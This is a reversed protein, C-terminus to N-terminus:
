AEKPKAGNEQVPALQSLYTRRYLTDGAMLEQHKGREVIQGDKIVLILDANTIIPLRHSIIFTTRGKILEDVAKRILRETEADVSSTIEDLILVSPNKLIARAITVRQKEGGSLTHGREGVWTEYGDPLSMIFDHIQAAKAAATVQEITADPMGYAINNRITTSFLFVDQQATGINKRLSSLAIDRIDIGDMTIRGGSVDYFRLILNIITSKGSGSAGVLAVLQGPEVSFNISHLAPANEAYSFSVDEFAVRGKLKDLVVADPKDKVQSKTDLIEFIREGASMSRSYMNTVMGLARIPMALMGLYMIFQVIGGVTLNGAIVQRGGYWLVLATPAGILFVMLPTNFAVIRAADIQTDYLKKADDAFKKDEAKEQAFSKVIRIGTLSEQLTTGLSAILQQVKLWVPRLRNSTTVARYAMLPVFALTMLALRWDLSILLWSIGVTLFTTQLIQLLGMSIFIRTAEIDVTARSMLQGTQAKDFYAFSLSQLHDYLKNRIDYAVRQSIVQTFYRNGYGTIGRLASSGLIVGAAIILASARGANLVTDIGNGLMKPIILSFVTSATLCVFALLWMAWYKKLFDMLRLINKM